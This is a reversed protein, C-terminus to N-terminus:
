SLKPFQTGKTDIKMSYQLCGFLSHSSCCRCPQMLSVSPLCNHWLIILEYLRRCKQFIRLRTRRKFHAIEKSGTLCLLICLLLVLIGRNLCKERLGLRLGLRILFSLLCLGSFFSLLRSCSFLCRLRFLLTEEALDPAGHVRVLLIRIHTGKGLSPCINPRETLDHPGSIHFALTLRPMPEVMRLKAMRDTFSALLQFFVTRGTHIIQGLAALSHLAKCSVAHIQYPSTHLGAIVIRSVFGLCRLVPKDIRCHHLPSGASHPLESASCSLRASTHGM